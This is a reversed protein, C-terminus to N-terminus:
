ERQMEDDVEFSSKCDNKAESQVAYDRLTGESRSSLLADPLEPLDDEARAARMYELERPVSCHSRSGTVPPALFDKEKLQSTPLRAHQSFARCHVM